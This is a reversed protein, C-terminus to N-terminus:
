HWPRDLIGEEDARGREDDKDDHIHNDADDDHDDDDHDGDDHDGDDLDDTHDYLGGDIRGCDEDKDEGAETVPVPLPPPPPQPNMLSRRRPSDTCAERGTRQLQWPIDQWPDSTAAHFWSDSFWLATSTYKGRKPHSGGGGGRSRGGGGRSGGRGGGGGRGRM